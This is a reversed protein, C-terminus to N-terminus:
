RYPQARRIVTTKKMGTMAALRPWSWGRRKLEALLQGSWEPSRDFAVEADRVGALLEEQDITALDSALLRSLNKLANREERSTM